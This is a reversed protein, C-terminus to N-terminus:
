IWLKSWLCLQNIETIRIVRLWKVLPSPRGFNLFPFCQTWMEKGRDRTRPTTLSVLSDPIRPDLPAKLSAPTGTAPASQFEIQPAGSKPKFMATQAERLERSSQLGLAFSLLAQPSLLSLLKTRKAIRLQNGLASDLNLVRAPAGSSASPSLFGLGPPEVYQRESRPRWAGRRPLPFPGNRM